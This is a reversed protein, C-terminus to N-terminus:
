IPSDNYTSFLVRNPQDDSIAEFRGDLIGKEGVEIVQYRGKDMRINTLYKGSKIGALSANGNCDTQISILEGDAHFDLNAHQIKFDIYVRPDDECSIESLDKAGTWNPEPISLIAYSAFGLFLFIVLIQLTKIL